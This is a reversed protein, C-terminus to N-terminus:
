DKLNPALSDVMLWSLKFMAALHNQKASSHEVILRSPNQRSSSHEVILQSHNQRARFYALIQRSPDDKV